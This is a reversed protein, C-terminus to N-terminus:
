LKIETRTWQRLFRHASHVLSSDLVVSQQHTKHLNIAREVCRRCSCANSSFMGLARLPIGFSPDGLANCPMCRLAFCFVVEKKKTCLGAISTDRVRISTPPAPRPSGRSQVTRLLIDIKGELFIGHDFLAAISLRDHDDQHAFDHWVVYCLMTCQRRDDGEVCDVSGEQIPVAPKCRSSVLAVKQAM